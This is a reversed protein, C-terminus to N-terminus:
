EGPLWKGDVDQEWQALKEQLEKVLEPHELALNNMERIDETLNYLEPSHNRSQIVLKWPGRRVAGADNM